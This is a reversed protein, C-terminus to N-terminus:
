TVTCGRQDDEDFVLESLAYPPGSLWTPDEHANPTVQVATIVRTGVDTCCWTFLGCRFYAGIMFDKHDM